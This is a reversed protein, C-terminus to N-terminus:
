FAWQRPDQQGFSRAIEAPIFLFETKKKGQQAALQFKVTKRSSRKKTRITVDAYITIDGDKEPYVKLQGPVQFVAFSKGPERKYNVFNVDEGLKKSPYWENRKSKSTVVRLRHVTMSTHQQPKGVAEIRWIFPGELKASATMYVMASMSFGGKGGMPKVATSLKAGNIEASAHTTDYTDSKTFIHGCSTVGFSVVILLSTLYNM